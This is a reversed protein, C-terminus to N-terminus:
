LFLFPYSAITEGTFSYDTDAM